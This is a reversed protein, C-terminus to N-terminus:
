GKTEIDKKTISKNWIKILRIILFWRIKILRNPILLNTLHYEDWTRFEIGLDLLTINQICYNVNQKM